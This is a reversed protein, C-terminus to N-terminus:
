RSVENIRVQRFSGTFESFSMTIPPWDVIGWPNVVTVTGAEVDVEGVYYAHGEFLRDAGADSAYSPNDAGAGKALSSLGIAGHDDLTDRLQTITVDDPDYDTTPLGTLLELGTSATGSEVDGYDGYHLALAKELVLPWLEYEDGRVQNSVFAPRGDPWLVMDSTVTVEVREGDEYLHVAYTGNENASIADSILDPNAQAVAMISAVYWCDGISGQKVDLVSVGDVFLEHSVEGYAGTNAPSSPDDRAADGGVDGFTPQVEDTFEALRDFTDRSVQSALMEWLERREERSWGSFFRGDEMQDVWHELEDDSMAAILADLEPGSLGAIADRAKELDGSRVGFFGGELADRVGDLAGDVKQQDVSDAGGANTEEGAYATPVDSGDCTGAQTGISGLACGVQEALGLKSVGALVVGLLVVVAVLLGAYEVSAAGRDSERASPIFRM